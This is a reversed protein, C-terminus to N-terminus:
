LNSYLITLVLLNQLFVAFFTFKQKTEIFVIKYMLAILTAEICVYVVNYRIRQIYYEIFSYFGQM